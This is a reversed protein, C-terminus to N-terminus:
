PLWPGCFYIIMAIMMTIKWYWKADNQWLDVLILWRHITSKGIKEMSPKGEM